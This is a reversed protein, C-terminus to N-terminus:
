HICCCQIISDFAMRVVVNIKAASTFIHEIAEKLMNYSSCGPIIVILSKSFSFLKQKVNSKITHNIGRLVDWLQDTLEGSERTSANEVIKDISTNPSHENADDEDTMGIPIPQTLM